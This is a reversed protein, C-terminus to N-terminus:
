VLLTEANKDVIKEDQSFPRLPEVLLAHSSIRIAQQTDNCLTYSVTIAVIKSLLASKVYTRLIQPWSPYLPLPFILQHWLAGTM